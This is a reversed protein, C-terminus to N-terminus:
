TLDQLEAASILNGLASITQGAGEQTVRQLAYMESLGAECGCLMTM